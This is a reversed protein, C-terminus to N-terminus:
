RRGRGSSGGGRGGKGANSLVSKNGSGNGGSAKANSKGLVAKIQLYIRQDRLM